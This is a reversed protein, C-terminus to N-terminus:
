FVFSSCIVVRRSGYVGILWGAVPMSVISGVAVAALVSGLMALVALVPVWLQRQGRMM